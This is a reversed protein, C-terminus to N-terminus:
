VDKHGKRPIAVQFQLLHFEDSRPRQPKHNEKRPADCKGLIRALNGGVAYTEHAVSAWKRQHLEFHHLLNDRQYDECDKGGEEELALGQLPVVESGKDAQNRSDIKDKHLLGACLTREVKVLLIVM